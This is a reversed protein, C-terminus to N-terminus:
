ANAVFINFYYQIYHRCKRISNLAIRLNYHETELVCATLMEPYNHTHTCVKSKRENVRLKKVVVSFSFYNKYLSVYVYMHIYAYM